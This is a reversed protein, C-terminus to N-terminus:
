YFKKGTNLLMYSITYRVKRQTICHQGREGVAEEAPVGGGRM